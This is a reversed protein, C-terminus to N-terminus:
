KFYNSLLSGINTRSLDEIGLANTAGCHECYVMVESRQNKDPAIRDFRDREGAMRQCGSDKGCSHCQFRVSAILEELSGM